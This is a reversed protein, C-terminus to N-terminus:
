RAAWRSLLQAEREARLLSGRADWQSAPDSLWALTDRASDALPRPRLGASIARAPDMALVFEPRDDGTWLPLMAPTVGQQALWASPAWTLETAPPAVAAGVAGLMDAFSYPPEPDVVHFTGEDGAELLAVTFRALDRADIYQFPVEPDGPALVQGGRALRDVWYAFRATPDRPGIIYTPRIVLLGGAYRRQAVHECGVKLGGYNHPDIPPASSHPTDGDLGLPAVLAAGEDMGPEPADAYASVTSILAHLGGREGLAEALTDVQRPWYACVDVTADWYRGALVDLNADRNAHLHEFHRSGECGLGRHLVTVEHGAAVAADVLHWGVFRTGGIVLIRM